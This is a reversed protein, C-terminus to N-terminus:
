MESFLVLSSEMEEEASGVRRHGTPPHGPDFRALFCLQTKFGCAEAIVRLAEIQGVRRDNM